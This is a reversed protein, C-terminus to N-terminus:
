WKQKLSTRMPNLRRRSTAGASTSTASSTVERQIKKLSTERVITSIIKKILEVREPDSDEGKLHLRKETEEGCLKSKAEDDNSLYVILGMMELRAKTKGDAKAFSRVLGASTRLKDRYQVENSHNTM